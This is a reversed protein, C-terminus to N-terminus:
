FRSDFWGVLRPALPLDSKDVVLWCAALQRLVETQGIWQLENSISNSLSLTVGDIQVTDQM